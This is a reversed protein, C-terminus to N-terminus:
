IRFITVLRTRMCGKERYQTHAVLGDYAATVIKYVHGDTFPMNMSVNPPRKDFMNCVHINSLAHQVLMKCAREFRDAGDVVLNQIEPHKKAHFFMTNKVIGIVNGCTDKQLTCSGFFIKKQRSIRWLNLFMEDKLSQRPREIEILPKNIVFTKYRKLAQQHRWERCKECHRTKVHFLFCVKKCNKSYLKNKYSIIDDSTNHEFLIAMTDYCDVCYCMDKYVWWPTNKSDTLKDELKDELQDDFRDNFCGDSAWSNKFKEYFYSLINWM